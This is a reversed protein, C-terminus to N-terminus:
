NSTVHAAAWEDETLPVDTIAYIVNHNENQAREVWLGALKAKATLASIAAAYQGDEVAKRQIQDAEQILSEITVAAKEAGRSQLEAVRHAVDDRTTLRAAHKRDPKYGALKYAETATKGKALEQCFKEHKTNKLIPV